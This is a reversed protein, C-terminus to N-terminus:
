GRGPRKKLTPDEVIRTGAMLDALSKGDKRFAAMAFGAGLTIWCLAIGLFRLATTQLRLKKGDEQLIRLSFVRCGFTSGRQRWLGLVYLWPWPLVAILLLGVLLTIAIVPDPEGQSLNGSMFMLFGCFLTWLFALLFILGFLAAHEMAGAGLRRGFPATPRNHLNRERVILVPKELTFGCSECYRNMPCQRRQCKPCVSVDGAFPVAFLRRLDRLSTRCSPCTDSEVPIDHHCQPCENLNGPKRRGEIRAEPPPAPASDAFAHGCQDCFTDGPERRRGCEPCTEPANEQVPAERHACRPCDGAMPDYSLLCKPCIKWESSSAYM